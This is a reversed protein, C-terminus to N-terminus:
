GSCPDTTPRCTPTRPPVAVDEHDAPTHCRFSRGDGVGRDPANGGARSRFATPKSPAGTSAHDSAARWGRHPAHTHARAGNPPHRLGTDIPSRARNGSRPDTDPSSARGGVARLDCRPAAPRGASGRTASASGRRVAWRLFALGKYCRARARPRRRLRSRATLAYAATVSGNETAGEGLQPILFEECRACLSPEKPHLPENLFSDVLM